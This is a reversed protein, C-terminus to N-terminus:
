FFNLRALAGSNKRLLSILQPPGWPGRRALTPPGPDGVPYFYPAGHAGSSSRSASFFKRRCLRRFNKEPLFCSRLPAGHAGSSTIPPGMPGKQTFYPAGHSGQSQLPRSPRASAFARAARAARAARRIPRIPTIPFFAIFIWFIM